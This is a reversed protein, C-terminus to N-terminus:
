AEGPPTSTVIGLKNKRVEAPAEPTLWNSFFCEFAAIALVVLFFYDMLPLGERLRELTERMEDLSSAVYVKDARCAARVDAANSQKLDSERTDPNVAFAGSRGGARWSYAGPADTLDFVAANSDPLSSSEVLHAKGAPTTVEVKVSEITEPFPLRVPSGVLYSDKLTERRGVYYVIEHLLPLYGQKLPFNSWDPAASCAFMLVAGKGHKNEILFPSGDGLAALEIASRGAARATVYQFVRVDNFIGEGKFRAPLPHSYDVDTVRRFQTHDDANGLIAGFEVPMLGGAPDALVENYHQPEFNNGAFVILGGGGRVYEELVSALPRSIRRVNVLFVADYDSFKERQAAATLARAPLIPSRPVAGGLPDLAKVLYFSDDMFEVTAKDDQIILVRLQQRIAVTFSRLNDAELRDDEIAVAGTHVGPEAFTHTFSVAVPVKPALTVRRRDRAKGDVYLTATRSVAKPGFNLLRAEVTIPEGEVRSRARVTVDTVAANSTDKSGCDIIIVPIRSSTEETPAATWSNRQLDSVVLVQENPEGTEELVQRARGIAAPLNGRAASVSSRLIEREVVSLDTTASPDARDRPPNTLLLAATAKGGLGRLIELATEKAVAFRAEGEDDASMSLSNDLVIAVAVPGGAWGSAPLFPRALAIALLACILARLLLLFIDQLRQRRATRENSVRLFRLTSFLVRPAKRRHILHIVVPMAASAAGVVFLPNMFFQALFAGM